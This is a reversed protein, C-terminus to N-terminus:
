STMTQGLSDVMPPTGTDLGDGERDVAALDYSYLAQGFTFLGDFAKGYPDLLLKSPDCRHGAAPDFPGHVRFGYRQGPTVGPLYAHWVYGDVEDLRIRSESGKDDILCLEVKEAIESFLSFNTGAGDYAAGLPYANGPWVTPLAPTSGDTDPTAAGSTAAPKNLPM